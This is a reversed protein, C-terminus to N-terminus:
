RAIMFKKTISENETVMRYIYVGNPLSNGNFLVRYEIGQEADQAFLSQIKRGSMDYVDVLVKGATETGFIVNLDGTTPNPQATIYAPDPTTTGNAVTREAVRRMARQAADVMVGPTETEETELCGAALDGNYTTFVEGDLTIAFSVDSQSGDAGRVAFTTADKASVMMNGDAMLAMGTVKNSVTGIAPRLGTEPDLAYITGGSQRSALLLNGNMDYALDGGSVLADMVFTTAGTAIDVTYIKNGDTDAIVLTGNEDFVAATVKTLTTSLATEESLDGDVESIDLTRFSGGESRVLYLLDDAENYAVHVEYDVSALATLAATSADTDVDVGYITSISDVDVDALFYSYEGGACELDAPQPGLNSRLSFVVTASADFAVQNGSADMQPQNNGSPHQISFFGFKYDPTFTLGTPESGIPSSLFLEVNPNLQSHDPRVVWIYNRGGDQLVWLNGQDDFTLNDNGGGWPESVVGDATTIEYSMGGVFTEFNAIDSGNDSFRYTRGNGKSTFYVKGDVTGIECDEVGNFNTGGLAAALNRINNRDAQTENPVQVWTATTGTPDGNSLPNDLVLVYVSGSSLNGPEDAVYKYVCQTGGDEGYYATVQDTSVVVNEHNMRGMAWLKDQVGDGDYDVVRSTIPDIEVLWGIDEYGDENADGGSTNEEATIITEWPTIGGSCNRITSVLDDNYFDVARTTDVVWLNTSQNYHLDIMSVGGPNNEHNVSLHGVTSSGGLPIYGTFDHNGPVTGEGETYADGQKFIMQFRHEGAIIMNPTESTPNISTFCGIHNDTCDAPPNVQPFNQIFLDFSLDSSFGDRNHVEAAIQNEGDVFVTSPIAYIQYAEEDSGSVTTASFTLYDIEGEPMNDRIIEVGNIYVVAGDDRLLGFLVSDEMNALDIIISRRFYTTIYKDDADDGFSIVTNVDNNYGLPGNGQGWPYDNYSLSKWDEAGLDSGNDLYNWASQQAFPYSAAELAPDTFGVSMDFGLDSSNASAQHLEVAIVNEGDVLLNGTSVTFYTSEDDSGVASAALTNFTVDGEPMNMRFAETGNVYVVAGDDRLVDFVLSDVISADELDFVHRLYTTIFKNDADPGFSLATTEDGDGYGFKGAGFAWASDAAYEIATWDDAALDEGLDNYLWTSGAAIPFTGNFYIDPTTYTIVLRAATEPDNEFTQFVRKNSGNGTYGAVELYLPDVMAFALANGAAWGDRGIVESILDTLDVSQQDEGADGVNTFPNVTWVVTDGFFYNRNFVNGNGSGYSEANDENEIAILVNVEGNVSVEDVTVQIYASEIVSGPPVDIDSFRLGILQEASGDRTLEIDSSTRYMDGGFLDQEVDDNGSTVPFATTTTVEQAISSISTGLLFAAMM